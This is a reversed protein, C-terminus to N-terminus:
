SPEVQRARDRAPTIGFFRRYSHAFSYVDAYGISLAIQTISLRDARLLERGRDMRLRLLYTSPPVGFSRQFERSFYSRHVGVYDAVEQVTLGDAFQEDLLARGRQLWSPTTDTDEAPAVQVLIEGLLRTLYECARLPSPPDSQHFSAQVSKLYPGLRKMQVQRLAPTAETLGAQGVLAGAAPGDFAVWVREPPRADSVPCYHHLVGPFLCFVDGAQLLQPQTHATELRLSGSIVVHLSFHPITRPGCNFSATAESWGTALTWVGLLREADSAAHMWLDLVEMPMQRRM